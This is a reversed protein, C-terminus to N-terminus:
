EPSAGTSFRLMQDRGHGAGDRHSRDPRRRGTVEM